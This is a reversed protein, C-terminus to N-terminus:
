SALKGVLEKAKLRIFGYNGGLANFDAAKVATARARKTDGKGQLALAMEYLVRSRFLV